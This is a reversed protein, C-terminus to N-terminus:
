CLQLMHYPFVRMYGDPTHIRVRSASYATQHIFVYGARLTLLRTYSYTGQECLLCDPTHIRVRSASYATQHIFVYGARLTLLRHHTSDTSRSILHPEAADDQRSQTFCLGTVGYVLLGRLLDDFSGLSFRM